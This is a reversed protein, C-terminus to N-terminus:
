EGSPLPIKTDVAVPVGFDPYGSENWGFAQIRTSRTETPAGSESLAHYVIWDETGDPSVTFSNHGPAFVNREPSKSFVPLPLKTWAAADTPECAEDAILMGLGYDDAWTTSASYVLFLKGNRQIVVPGENIAMGGQKEWEFEPKTLLTEKAAITWPNEMRAIYIASGYDPFHGYGAYLFYLTGKHHFVTGDLGPLQTNVAGREIWTGEFPDHHENELVYVRRTDDGGGDNATFYVYWKGNIVHLEPAWLNQCGPGSAPPTYIVEHRGEAIGTMSDASRLELHSRKTVMLYYKGDSHKMMWPDAGGMLIPNVFTRDM